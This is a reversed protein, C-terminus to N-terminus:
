RNMDELVAQISPEDQLRARLKGLASDRRSAITNKSVGLQSGVKRLSLGEIVCANFVWVEEPTLTEVADAILEKAELREAISVAAIEHPRTEMLAQLVTTPRQRSPLWDGIDVFGNDVMRHVWLM